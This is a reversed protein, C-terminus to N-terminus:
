KGGASLAQVDPFSKPMRDIESLKFRTAVVSNLNADPRYKIYTVAFFTGDPLVVVGPYGCDPGNYSHLLKIRYQGEKGEVIDQYRGVWAVFHGYMGSQLARDRFCVVLRGDPAYVAVHRDGALGIPLPKIQSWTSGEDDSTMYYSTRKVNERMLCLLQRGNPSRIVFPECLKLGGRDAVVRFTSWTKGGDSSHSQAVVNSAKETVEGPRRINTLALLQRGGEIPLITCFPVVCVLGNSAMDSWTAGEDGSYSQNMAGDPGQGAFVFLRAKGQPDKLRYITPCNKVQTWNPPTSLLNSWTKGGDDSRKMPGCSGGHGLTWVVLITKGDGLLAATPHGEYVKSTGAAVIVQRGVDHSLDVNPLPFTEGPPMVAGPLDGHDVKGGPPGMAPAVVSLPPDAAEVPLIIAGALLLHLYFRMLVRCIRHRIRVAISPVEFSLSCTGNPYWNTMRM